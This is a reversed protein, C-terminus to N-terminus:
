LVGLNMVIPAVARPDDVHVKVEFDGNIKDAILLRLDIL